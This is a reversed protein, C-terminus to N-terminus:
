WGKMFRASSSESAVQGQDRGPASSGEVAVEARNFSPTRLVDNRDQFGTVGMVLGFFAKPLGLLGFGDGGDTETEGSLWDELEEVDEMTLPKLAATVVLYYNDDDRLVSLPAIHLDRRSELAGRAEALDLFIEQRGEKDRVVYVEDWADLQLKYALHRSAERRDFWASRERWVEIDLILTVPVGRELIEETPADILNVLTLDVALDDGAAAIRELRVGIEHEADDPMNEPAVAKVTSDTQAHAVGVATTGAFGSLGCALVLVLTRPMLGQARKGGRRWRHIALPSTAPRQGCGFMRGM